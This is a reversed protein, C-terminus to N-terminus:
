LGGPVGTVKRYGAVITSSANSPGEGASNMEYLLAVGGTAGVGMGEAGAAFEAGGGVLTEQGTRNVDIQVTYNAITYAIDKTGGDYSDFGMVQRFFSTSDGSPRDLYSISGLDSGTIEEGEDVTKSILKPTTYIGSDAHYFAMKYFKDNAAIQLDITTTTTASIGILTLVVLVFLAVIIVIGDENRIPRFFVNM